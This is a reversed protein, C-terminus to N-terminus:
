FKIIIKLLQAEGTRMKVKNNCKRCMSVFMGWISVCVCCVYGMYECVCVIVCVHIRTCDNVKILTNPKFNKTTSWM